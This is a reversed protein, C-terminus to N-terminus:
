RMGKVAGILSGLPVISLGAFFAIPNFVDHRVLAMSSILLIAYAGLRLPSLAGRSGLFFHSLIDKLKRKKPAVTEQHEKEQTLPEEQEDYVDFPDEYKKFDKTDSEDHGIGMHVRNEVLRKYSFFTAITVLLSCCFAVQTNIFWHQQMWISFVVVVGDIVLFLYLFKRTVVAEMVAVVMVIMM